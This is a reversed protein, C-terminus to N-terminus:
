RLMGPMLCSSDIARRGAQGATSSGGSETEGLDSRRGGAEPAVGPPMPLPGTEGLLLVKAAAAMAAAGAAAAAPSGAAAARSALAAPRPKVGLGAVVGM